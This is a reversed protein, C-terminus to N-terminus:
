LLILALIIGLIPVALLWPADSPLEIRQPAGFASAEGSADITQVRVFVVADDPRELRISPETTEQDVVLDTFANDRAMQVRYRDDPLGAPWRLMMATDSLEPKEPVPGPQPVRLRQPDSFPGEEGQKDITAVRWRYAGPPLAATVAFRPEGLRDAAALPTQFDDGATLQFRYAAAEDPESWRFQPLGDPVVGGEGPEIPFPPEPRANLVFARTADRGEQGLADIARVRLVYSGDALDPGTISPTAAVREAVVQTFAADRAIELRYAAAGNVESVRIRVPVRELVAPVDTLEPAPLLPRPPRPSSGLDVVTGFGAGIAVTKARASVVVRGSLVETRMAENAELVGVRFDTGRVASLAAPTRIEARSGGARRSRARMTTTGKLLRLRTDVFATGGAVSLIDLVVRSGAGVRLTSGDAFELNVSSDAGTTVEDGPKLLMDQVAPTREQSAGSLISADGEVATIRAPAPKIRMWAVPIRLRSGPPLNSPDAVRNLAQLRQWDSTELLYAGSVDWLTDGPRVTYLWETASAPPVRALVVVCGMALLWRWIRRTTM